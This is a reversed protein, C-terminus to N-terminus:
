ESSAIRWESNAIRRLGKCWAHTSKVGAGSRPSLVQRQTEFGLGVDIGAHALQHLLVRPERVDKGDRALRRQAPARAAIGPERLDDGVLLERGRARARDPPPQGLGVIRQM